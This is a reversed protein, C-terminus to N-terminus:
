TTKKTREMYTEIRVDEVTLYPLNPNFVSTKSPWRYPMPFIKCGSFLRYIYGYDMTVVVLITTFTLFSFLM